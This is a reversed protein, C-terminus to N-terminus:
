PVRVRQTTCAQDMVNTTSAQPLHLRELGAEPQENPILTRVPTWAMRCQTGTAGLEEGAKTDKLVKIIRQSLMWLMLESMIESKPQCFPERMKLGEGLRTAGRPFSMWSTDFHQMATHPIIFFTCSVARFVELDSFSTNQTGSMLNMQLRHSLGHHLLYKMATWPTGHWSLNTHQLLHLQHLELPVAARPSCVTIFQDWGM